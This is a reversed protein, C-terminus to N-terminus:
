NLDIIFVQVDFTTHADMVRLGLRLELFGMKKELHLTVSILIM